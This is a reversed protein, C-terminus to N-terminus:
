LRGFLSFFQPPASLRHRPRGSAARGASREFRRHVRQGGRDALPRRRPVHGPRGASRLREAFRWFNLKHLPANLWGCTICYYTEYPATHHVQHHQPGLILGARQAWGVLVPVEAQHSWKHFQNTAFIWFALSLAITFLVLGVTGAVPILWAAAMMPVTVISNNGNTEIFDHLTMAKPDVHHERFPRIFAPGVIPSDYDGFRDGMWHVLGSTFDALVYGIFVALAIWWGDNPGAASIARWTGAVVLSFLTTIAFVELVRHARSYGTTDPTASM